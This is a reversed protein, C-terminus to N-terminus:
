EEEKPSIFSRIIYITGYSTRNNKKYNDCEEETEFPGVVYMVQLEAEYPDCALLVYM